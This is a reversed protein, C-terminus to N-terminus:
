RSHNKINKETKEAEFEEMLINEKQNFDNQLSKKLVISRRYEEDLKETELAEKILHEKENFYNKYWQIIDKKETISLYSNQSLGNLVLSM